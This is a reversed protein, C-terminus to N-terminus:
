QEGKMSSGAGPLDVTGTTQRRDWEASNKHVPVADTEDHSWLKLGSMGGILMIIFLIRLTGAPEGLFLMGAVATGAAAIGTFVTYATSIPLLAVAKIYLTYSLGICCLTILSPLLVTFGDALKLGVAWVIDLLGGLIVCMWAYALKQREASRKGTEM